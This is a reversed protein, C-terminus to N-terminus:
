ESWGLAGSLFINSPLPPPAPSLLTLQQREVDVRAVFLVAAVPAAILEDCSAAAAHVLALLHGTLAASAAAPLKTAALAEVDVALGIPLASRPAQPADGISYIEM